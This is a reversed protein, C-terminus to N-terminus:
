KIHEQYTALSIKVDQMKREKKREKKHLVQIDFFYGDYIV